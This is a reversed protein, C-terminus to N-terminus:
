IALTKRLQKKIVKIPSVLKGMNSLEIQLEINEDGRIPKSTLRHTIFSGRRIQRDITKMITPQEVTEIVLRAESPKGTEFTETM